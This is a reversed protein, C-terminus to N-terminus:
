VHRIYIWCLLFIDLFINGNKTKFIFWLFFYQENCKADPTQQMAVNAHIFVCKACFSYTNQNKNWNTYNYIHFIFILQATSFWLAVNYQAQCYVAQIQIAHITQIHLCCRSFLLWLTQEPVNEKRWQWRVSLSLFLYRRDCWAVWWQGQRCTEIYRTCRGQRAAQSGSAPLGNPWSHNPLVCPMAFRIINMGPQMKWARDCLCM